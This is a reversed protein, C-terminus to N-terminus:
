GLSAGTLHPFAALDLRAAAALAHGALGEADSIAVSPEAVARSAAPSLRQYTLVKLFSGVWLGGTYRGAGQTPLTHNPGSAKDGFTVTTEEGIFLSGYNRLRTHYWGGDRVQIELHEPAFEDSLRVAEEDDDAVLVSGLREWAAATVERTPWTPLLDEIETLVAEGFARSTTILQAPSTPGHEAQSLLDTAVLRPRASDDAIVLIETPGALLDIGVIGFLQRKAEAVYANGAGVLMTVPDIGPLLGFALAGLAQVGGLALLADVGALRAAYATAPNITGAPGVPTTLVVQEVGAVRPPIAGMLASSILQYRGGPVYVGVSDVPIVRHGVELGPEIEVTLDALTGRQAEAFTRVRRAAVEIQAALGVPVQACLADLEDADVVFSEPEWRDLDRSYARVADLGGAEITALMEAVTARVESTARDGHPEGRKLVEAM